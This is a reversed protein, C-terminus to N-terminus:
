SNCLIYVGDWFMVAKLILLLSIEEVPFVEMAYILFPLLIKDFCCANIVFMISFKSLGRFKM